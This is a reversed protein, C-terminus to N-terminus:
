LKFSIATVFTDNKELTPIKFESPPFKLESPPFHVLIQLKYDFEQIILWSKFFFLYIFLYFCVFYVFDSM